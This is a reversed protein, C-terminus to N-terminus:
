RNALTKINGLGLLREDATVLTLDFVLATASLIRDTPDLDFPIQRCALAVDHTFPAEKTGATANAVWETLDGPLRVRGKHHLTLAEVTSIPSIWIEHQQSKLIRLTKGGLRKTDGLLWIWVHTDLLLKL